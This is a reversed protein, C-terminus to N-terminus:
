TGFQTTTDSQRRKRREERRKAIDDAASVEKENPFEDLQNLVDTLQRSLPALDRAGAQEIEQALRDRLAILTARKDGSAAAEVLGM